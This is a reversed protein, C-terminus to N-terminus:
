AKKIVFNGKASLVLMSEERVASGWTGCDVCVYDFEIKQSGKSKLVRGNIMKVNGECEHCFISQAYKATKM